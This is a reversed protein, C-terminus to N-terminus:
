MCYMTSVSYLYSSCDGIEMIYNGNRECEWRSYIMGDRRMDFLENWNGGIGIKM